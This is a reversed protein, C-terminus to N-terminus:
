SSEIDYWCHKCYCLGTYPDCIVWGDPALHSPDFEITHTKQNPRLAIELDSSTSQKDCGDCRFSVQEIVIGPM